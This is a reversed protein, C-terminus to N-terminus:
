KNVVYRKKLGDRNKDVFHQGIGKVEALEELSKFGKHTERYKIIAQARKEGIGKFSGKLTSLDAKNLDIPKTLSTKKISPDQPPAAHVAVSALFISLLMVIPTVKM